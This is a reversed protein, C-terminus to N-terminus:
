APPEESGTKESSSCWKLCYKEDRVDAVKTALMTAYVLQLVRVVHCVLLYTTM